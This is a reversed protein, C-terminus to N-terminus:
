RLEISTPDFNNQVVMLFAVIFRKQSVLDTTRKNGPLPPRGGFPLSFWIAATLVGL